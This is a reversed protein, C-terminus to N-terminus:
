QWEMASGYVQNTIPVMRHEAMIGACYAYCAITVMKVSELNCYDMFTYASVVMQQHMINAVVQRKVVYM